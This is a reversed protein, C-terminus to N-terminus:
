EECDKEGADPVEDVQYLIVTGDGEMYAMGHTAAIMKGVPRAWVPSAGTLLETGGLTDVTYTFSCATTGDGASGGTQTVDVAFMGGPVIGISKSFVYQRRGTGDNADLGFVLVIDGVSLMHTGLVAEALNLASVTQEFGPLVEDDIVPLFDDTGDDTLVRQRQIWYNSDSFDTAGGPTAILKGVWFEAITADPDDLFPSNNQGHQALDIIGEVPTNHQSPALVEGVKYDGLRFKKQNPIQASMGM